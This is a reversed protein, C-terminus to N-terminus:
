RGLSRCPWAGLGPNGQELAQGGEVLWAVQSEPSLSLIRSRSPWWARSIPHGSFDSTQFSVAMHVCRFSDREKCRQLSLPKRSQWQGVTFRLPTRSQIGKVWKYVLNMRVGLRSWPHYLHLIYHKYCDKLVDFVASYLYQIIICTGMPLTELVRQDM